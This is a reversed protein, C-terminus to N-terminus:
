RIMVAIADHSSPLNACWKLTLASVMPLVDSWGTFTSSYAMLSFFTLEAASGITRISPRRLLKPSRSTRRSMLRSTMGPWTTVIMPAEPEPLDVSKRQMLRSSVGSAPCTQNWPASRAASCTSTFRRRSFIPMTNWPKLRNLLMFTSSLQVSAGTVRLFIPLASASSTASRWRSDTPRASKARASTLLREPPCFCRTAMARARQM